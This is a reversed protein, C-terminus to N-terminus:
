YYIRPIEASIFDDIEVPSHIGDQPSVTLLLHMHPLGRKQFDITYLYAALKGFIQEKNIDNIIDDFKLKAIRTILDPRDQPSQEIISNDDLKISAAERFETWDPNCNV